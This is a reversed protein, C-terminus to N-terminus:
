RVLILKGKRSMEGAAIRYYYVGPAARRGGSTSGDWTLRRPGPGATEGALRRIMRGSADYIEASLRLERGLNLQFTFSDSGVTRPALLFPASGPGSAPLAPADIYLGYDVIISEETELNAAPDYTCGDKLINEVVFRFVDGDSAGLRPSPLTAIGNDNTPASVATVFSDNLYWLGEVEVGPLREGGAEEIEVAANARWDFDVISLKLSIAEVHCECTPPPPEPPGCFSILLQDVYLTNINNHRKIRDTDIVRVFVDGAIDAPLSVARAQDADQTEYVTTLYTFDVGNQSFSLDFDDDDETVSHYAEICLTAGTALPPLSFTWTHILEDHRTPRAGEELVREELVLYNDDSEVLDALGGSVVAGFGTTQSIPYVNTAGTACCPSNSLGSINQDEDAARVAFYYTAGPALGSVKFVQISGAPYPEPEGALEIASAWAGEDDIPGASEEVYRVDYCSCTGFSGDDGPASWQLTVEDCGPGPSAAMNTIASPPTTDPEPLASVSAYANLHGSGIRDPDASLPMANDVMVQKIVHQPAYPNKELMLAAAGSAYATSTSTGSWYDGSYGGGIVLSNVKAGPACIDPKSLGPPYPFDDYPSEDQWTVPGISSFLPVTDDQRVAGLTIVGPVDGPTRINYPPPCYWAEGVANGENGAAACVILGADMANEVVARWTARTPNYVCQIWGISLNIVDAGNEVAYQMAEWSSSEVGMLNTLVKCAMISAGPAVGTITGATGDGAAIGATITGHGDDDMPDSDADAFDFGYFDDVYGNGDDDAGNDPIEGPNRWMRNQLDTHYYDVGTDVMAILVGDGTYGLENWVRDAEIETVGWAIDTTPESLAASPELVQRPTDATISIVEDLNSLASIAEYSAKLRLVNAIWLPRVEGALGRAELDRILALARSQRGRHFTKLESLFAARAARKTVGPAIGSASPRDLRGELLVNIYIMRGGQTASRLGPDIRHVYAQAHSYPLLLVLVLLLSPLAALPITKRNM